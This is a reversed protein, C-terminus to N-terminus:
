VRGADRLADHAIRFHRRQYWAPEHTELLTFLEYLADIAPTDAAPAPTTIPSAAMPLPHAATVPAIPITTGSAEAAFASDGAGCLFLSGDSPEVFLNLTGVRTADPRLQEYLTTVADCDLRIAAVGEGDRCPITLDVPGASLRLTGHTAVLDVPMRTRTLLFLSAALEAADIALFASAREAAADPAASTPEVVALPECTDLADRLHKLAGVGRQALFLLLRAAVHKCIGGHAHARVYFDRCTCTMTVQYSAVSDASTPDGPTQYATVTYSTQRGRGSSAVVSLSGDANITYIHAKIIQELATRAKEQVALVTFLRNFVALALGLAEDTVLTEPALPADGFLAYWAALDLELQAPTQSVYESAILAGNLYLDWAPTARDDESHTVSPRLAKIPLTVTPM